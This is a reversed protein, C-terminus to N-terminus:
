KAQNDQKIDRFKLTAVIFIVFSLISLIMSIDGMFTGGSVPFRRVNSVMINIVIILEIIGTIVALIGLYLSYIFYKENTVYALTKYWKFLMYICVVLFILGFILSFYPFGNNYFTPILNEVFAKTCIFVMVCSILMYAYYKILALSNALKSLCFSVWGMLVVSLVTFFYYFFGSFEPYAAYSNIANILIAIIIFIKVPHINIALINNKAENLDLFAYKSDIKPLNTNQLSGGISGFNPSFSKSIIYIEVAKGDKIDFDVELGEIKSNENLNKIADEDYYYRNGDEGSIAGAGLIKGKM